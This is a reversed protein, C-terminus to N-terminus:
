SETNPSAPLPPLGNYARKAAERRIRLAERKGDEIRRYVDPWLSRLFHTGPRLLAVALLLVGQAALNANTLAFSLEVEFFLAEGSPEVGRAPDFMTANLGVIAAVWVLTQIRLSFIGDDWALRDDSIAAQRRRSLLAAILIVAPGSLALILVSVISLLLGAESTFGDAPLGYTDYLYVARAVRAVAVIALAFPLLVLPLGVLRRLPVGHTRVSQGPSDRRAASLRSIGALGSVIAGTLSGAAILHYQSNDIAGPSIQAAVLASTVAGVAAGIFLWTLWHAHARTIEDADGKPFALPIYKQIPAGIGAGRRSEWTILAATLAVVVIFLAYFAYSDGM